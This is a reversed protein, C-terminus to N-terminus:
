TTQRPRGPKRERMQEVEDPTFVLIPGLKQGLNRSAALARVRRTSLGLLKAVEATTLV